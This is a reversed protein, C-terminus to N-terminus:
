NRWTMSCRAVRPRTSATPTNALYLVPNKGPRLQVGQHNSPLYGSGWLRSFLPQGPNKGTGQSLMVVYGPLDQNESGLGYNLWSGMSAKGPQQYGTNILTIGPDHNIADTHM